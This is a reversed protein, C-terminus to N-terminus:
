RPLQGSNRDIWARILERQDSRTIGKIELVDGDIKLKVSREGGRSVWSRVTDVLATLLELSQVLIIILEGAAVIEGARADPPAPGGRAHVASEIDLDLLDRRLQGARRRLEDIDTDSDAEIRLDLRAFGEAM